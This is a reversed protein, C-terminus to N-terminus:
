NRAHDTDWGTISNSTSLQETRRAYCEIIEPQTNYTRESHNPSKVILKVLAQDRGILNLIDITCSHSINTSNIVVDMSTNSCLSTPKSIHRITGTTQLSRSIKSTQNKTILSVTFINIHAIEALCPEAFRRSFLQTGLLYCCQFIWILMSRYGLHSDLGPRWM